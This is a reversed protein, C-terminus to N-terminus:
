LEYCPLMQFIQYSLSDTSTHSPWSAAAEIVRRGGNTTDNLKQPGVVVKAKVKIIAVVVVNM